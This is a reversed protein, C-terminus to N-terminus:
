MKPAAAVLEPGTAGAVLRHQFGSRAVAGYDHGAGAPYVGLYVLPVDGTNITRHATSGPVYVISSPALPVLRSERTHEDQLLLAGTGRVGIYVEAAERAAHLHGRTLYYEAGIRGPLLCNVSYGLAGPAAPPEINVVTYIVPDGVVLAREYAGADGFCGRLDSLRRVTPRAGPVEGTYPDFQTLLGALLDREM